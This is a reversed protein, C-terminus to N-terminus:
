EPLRFMVRHRAPNGTAMAGKETDSSLVSGASLKSFAGLSKSPNISAATGLFTCKGCEASGNLCAYPSLVASRGTKADHGVSAYTNLVTNESIKAFPGVYTFPCVISGAGIIATSSVHALPHILTYPQLGSELCQAFNLERVLPDGIAILFRTSTSDIEDISQFIRATKSWIKGIDDFRSEQPRQDVLLLSEFEAGRSSERTKLYEVIEVCFGGCGVIVLNEAVVIAWELDGM